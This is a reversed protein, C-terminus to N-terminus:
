LAEEVEEQIQRVLDARSWAQSRLREVDIELFEGLKIALDVDRIGEFQNTQQNNPLYITNSDSDFGSEFCDSLERLWADPIGSRQCHDISWIDDGTCEALLDLAKLRNM